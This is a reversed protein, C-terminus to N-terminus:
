WSGANDQVGKQDEFTITVGDTSKNVETVVLERANETGEVYPFGPQHQRSILYTAGLNSKDLYSAELKSTYYGRRDGLIFSLRDALEQAENSLRLLTQMIFATANFHLDRASLSQALVPAYEFPITDGFEYHNNERRDFEVTVRHGIDGYDHEFDLGRHNLEDASYDGPGPFPQVQTIQLRLFNSEPGIFIKYLCSKLLENIAERFTPMEADAKNAPFAAGIMYSDGEVAQFYGDSIDAQPFGSDVILRYIASIAQAANGGTDVIAGVPSLDNYADLSKTGYVTCFIKWTAPDFTALSLGAEFNDALVFGRVGNGNDVLVTYDRGYYLVTVVNAPSVLVVNGVFARTATDGPAASGAIASHDVFKGAYDVNSVIAYRDTGSRQIIMTDNRNVTPTTLFYTRTATNSAGDDVTFVVTADNQASLGDISLTRVHTLWDRNKNTAPTADYDVNIPSMDTVMGFIRRVLYNGASAAPEVAVYSTSNIRLGPIQRDFFRIFDSCNITVSFGSASLGSGYGNFIQRVELAGVGDVLNPNALIYAKATCFNFSSAYLMENMWGDNNLIEITSQNMPLFGYISNRNGSQALAPNKLAPIWNLVQSSPVMPDRPGTFAQDSINLEFELTLGPYTNSDPDASASAYIFGNLHDWFFEGTGANDMDAVSAMETFGNNNAYANWVRTVFGFTFPARYITGDFNTWGTKRVRPRLVLLTHKEIKPNAINAAYTM